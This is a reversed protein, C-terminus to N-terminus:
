IYPGAPNSGADADNVVLGDCRWIRLLISLNYNKKFQFTNYTPLYCM